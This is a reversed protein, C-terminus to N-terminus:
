ETVIVYDPAICAQGANVSKAWAIRRAAVELDADDAVIVPSKGGLELTVPTLNAAAAAMIQRGVATSGTFFIHDFPLATLERSVDADGTIVRVAGPDLYRPLTRALLDATAGSLESPKVIAANGAALASVLPHVTLLIPFNWAGIILVVGKPEPMTWAKGPATAANLSVPTRKMWGALKALTHRIEHRVPAVDALTAMPGRGLDAAIADAIEGECEDIFALLGELQAKRWELSRTRGTRFTDRASAFADAVAAAQTVATADTVTM